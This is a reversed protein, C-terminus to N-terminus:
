CSFDARLTPDISDLKNPCFYNVGNFIEVSHGFM